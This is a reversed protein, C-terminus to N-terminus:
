RRASLTAAYGENTLARTIADVTVRSSDYTVEAAGVTVSADHVGDLKKLTTEVSAVCHGCSMHSINLSAHEM